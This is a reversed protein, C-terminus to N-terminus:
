VSEAIVGCVGEVCEGARDRFSGDSSAIGVALLMEALSRLQTRDVPQGARGAEVVSLAAATVAEAPLADLLVRRFLRLSRTTVTDSGKFPLASPPPFPSASAAPGCAGVPAGFVTPGGSGGVGAM